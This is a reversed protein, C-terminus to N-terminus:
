GKNMRNGWGRANDDKFSDMERMKYVNGKGGEEEDDSGEEKKEVNDKQSLFNGREMERDLYEDISMTPLSHGPRFVTKQVDQRSTIVFPRQVRGKSDLLATNPDIQQIRDIKFDESIKRQRERSNFKM